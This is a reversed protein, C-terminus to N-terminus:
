HPVLALFQALLTNKYTQYFNENPNIFFTKTTLLRGKRKRGQV